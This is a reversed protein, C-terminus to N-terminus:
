ILTSDSALQKVRWNRSSAINAFEPTASIFFLQKPLQDATREALKFLDTPDTDLTSLVWQDEHAMFDPLIGHKVFDNLLPKSILGVIGIKINQAYLQRLQQLLTEPIQIQDFWITRLDIKRVPIDFSEALHQEFEYITMQGSLLQNQHKLFIRELRMSDVSMQEALVGVSDLWGGLLASVDVFCWSITGIDDDLASQPAGTSLECIKDLSVNLQEILALITFFSPQNVKGQELKALTFLSLDARKALEAQTLGAETRAVKLKYALEESTIM